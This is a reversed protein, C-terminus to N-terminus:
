DLALVQYQANQYVTKYAALAGARGRGVVAFSAKYREKLMEVRAQDLGDYGSSLEGAGRFGKRGSVDELRKYWELLDGPAIPSGKWDAIIAREGLLRFREMGPPSIFIADKPTNAHMWAYLELEGGSGSTALNAHIPHAKLFSSGILGGTVLAAALVFFHGNRGAAAVPRALAKVRALGYGAAAILLFAVPLLVLAAVIPTVARGGHNSELMMLLLAGGLSLALGGRPIRKVYSPNIAIQAATACALVQALLELFPAYRWVFVQAVRPIYVVTTLLTGTWVAVAMSLVLMGLRTGRGDRGRLLWGGVGFGIMQWAAFPFFAHEYTKPAYHHPSRINFLIDQARAADAASASTSRLMLPALILGAVLSPGLQYALRRVLDKRGLLLHTLGFTAIGLVLFNAHLLGALGLWVGSALWKGKVFPPIAILLLMASVTSPQIIWSFVYSSAVSSTRTLTMLCALLVFAPLAVEPEVLELLLQYMCMAGVVATLVMAVGVGWGAHSFALMLYGLYAFIPHYNGPGMAYWDRTLLAKDTLRLAGLFYATQNDSGYNFGYIVGFAVSAALAVLFSPLKKLAPVVGDPFLRKLMDPRPAYWPIRLFDHRLRRAASSM